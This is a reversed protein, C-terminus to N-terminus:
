FRKLELMARERRRYSVEKENPRYLAHCDVMIKAAADQEGHLACQDALDRRLHAVDVNLERRLANVDDDPM